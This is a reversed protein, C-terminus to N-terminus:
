LLHPELSHLQQFLYTPDANAVSVFLKSTFNPNNKMRVRKVFFFTMSFLLLTFTGPMKQTKRMVQLNNEM